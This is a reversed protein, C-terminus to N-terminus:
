ASDQIPAPADPAGPERPTTEDLREVGHIGFACELALAINDAEPHQKLTTAPGHMLKNIIRRAMASVIERDRAPLHSLRALTVSLEREAVRGAHAKLRGVAAASGRATKWGMFRATEEAVIARAAPLHRSREKRHLEALASLENLGLVYVDPVAAVAEEINRPMGLDVCVLARGPPREPWRTFHAHALVPHPAATCCFVADARSVVGAIHDIPLAAVGLTRAFAAATDYSRSMVTVRTAATARLHRVILSASEGAGIVLVERDSYDRIGLRQAAARVALSELSVAHRGIGTSSRVRKGCSLAAAGLRDLLPGLGGAARAHSLARKWQLQIQDEGLVMSDLGSAVMLAHAAAESEAYTYAHPRVENARIGAREALARLLAEGGSGAHGAVAYFETRNCTSVVLAERMTQRLSALVNGTDSAPVAVRELLLAPASAHNCGVVVIAM